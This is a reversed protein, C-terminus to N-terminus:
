ALLMRIVLHPVLLGGDIIEAIITTILYSPTPSTDFKAPAGPYACPASVM